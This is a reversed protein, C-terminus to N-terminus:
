FAERVKQLAGACLNDLDGDGGYDLDRVDCKFILQGNVWLEVVNRDNIQLLEVSHGDEQLVNQLGQLRSERHDTVGCAEYPGYHLLVRASSPM